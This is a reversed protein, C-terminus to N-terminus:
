SRYAAKIATQLNFPTYPKALFKARAPIDTLAPRVQGSVIIIAVHPFSQAVKRALALGDRDGPMCVDTILLSVRDDRDLIDLAEVTSEAELAVFGADSVIQTALLRVFPEDDVILATRVRAATAM